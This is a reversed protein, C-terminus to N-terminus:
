VRAEVHQPRENHEALWLDRTLEAQGLHEATHRAVVLLVDRGTISGRRPHHRPEGLAANPLQGLAEELRLRLDAWHTTILATDPVIIAFEAAHDRAVPQGALVGLLNEEANALTHIALVAVSNTAPAPPRWNLGALPLAVAVAILREL